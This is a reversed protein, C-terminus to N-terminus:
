LDYRMALEFAALFGKDPRPQDSALRAALVFNQHQLPLTVRAEGLDIAVPSTTVINTSLNLPDSIRAHYYTVEYSWNARSRWGGQLMLLRSDGDLSFGLTRGRYRMGDVYEFNNYATGHDIHGFSFFNATALSDTYEFTLRLSDAGIPMWISTGFLHSTASQVFPGNDENMLQMYVQYPWNGLTNSYKFDFSAEDNTRDPSALTQGGSNFYDSLPVCKHGTGCIETTRSFGVELHPIPNVAVRTGVYVTNRAVRPGDLVGVFFEFQWPGIWSLWPSDFAETNDRRVGIQPFPRANNSLSLSSGWGPGWWHTLYGAYVVAGGFSQALYSGDPVFTTTGAHQITEAGLSLRVATTDGVYEASLQGQIDERGLADFSRVVAPNNTADFSLSERLREPHLQRVAVELVRDAAARVYGPQGALVDRGRLRAVVTSWPLPWQMTIDDIVGAAALIEIDSRLSGDAEIWPSSMAPSWVLLITAVAFMLTRLTM